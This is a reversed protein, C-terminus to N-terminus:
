KTVMTPPTWGNELDENFIPKLGNMGNLVFKSQRLTYVMTNYTGGRKKGVWFSIVFASNDVMKMNRKQYNEKCFLANPDPDELQIGSALKIQRNLEQEQEEKWYCAYISPHFPLYLRYKVNHEICAQGAWLDAGYESGFGGCEEISM